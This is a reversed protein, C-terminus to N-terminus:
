SFSCLKTQIQDHMFDSSFKVWLSNIRFALIQQIPSKWHLLDARFKVAPLHSKTLCSGRGPWKIDLSCHWLHTMTLNKQQLYHLAHLCFMFTNTNPCLGQTFSLALTFVFQVIERYQIQELLGVFCLSLVTIEM